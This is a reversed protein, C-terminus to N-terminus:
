SSIFPRMLCSSELTGDTVSLVVQGATKFLFRIGSFVRRGQDEPAFQYPNAEDDEIEEKPDNSSFWVIGAYDVVRNGYQDVAEIIVDNNLPEGATISDNEHDIHLRALDGNTVFIIDSVATLSGSQAVVRGTGVTTAQLFSGYIEGILDYDPHLSWHAETSEIPNDYQDVIASSFQLGEGARLYQDGLPFIAMHSAEDPFITFYESHDPGALTRGDSNDVKVVVRFDDALTSNTVSHLTIYAFYPERPGHFKRNFRVLVSHSYIYIRKIVPDPFEYDTDRYSVSDVTSVDFEPPLTIVVFRGRLVGTETSTAPIQFGVQHSSLHGAINDSLTDTIMELPVPSTPPNTALDTGNDSVYSGDMHTIEFGFAPASILCVLCITLLYTIYRYKVM